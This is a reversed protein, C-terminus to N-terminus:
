RRRHVCICNGYGGHRRSCPSCRRARITSPAPLPAFQALRDPVRGHYLYRAPHRGRRHRAKIRKSSRRTITVSKFAVALGGSIDVVRRERPGAFMPDKPRCIKLYYRSSKYSCHESWMVSFVGLESYNPERGLAKVIKQYEEPTIGHSAVLEPTVAPQTFKGGHAETM